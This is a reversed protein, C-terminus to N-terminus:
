PLIRPPADKPLAASTPRLYRPTPRPPAGAALRREAVRALAALDATEPTAVSAGAIFGDIAHADLTAAETVDGGSVRALHAAGGRAELRVVGDHEAAEFRDVGVAPVGLSLALGRAAAVGARAGTFNGPGTCVAIADLDALAAGAGDLAADILPFLRDAHGRAMDEAAEALPAGDRVVAAACRGATLDFALILM